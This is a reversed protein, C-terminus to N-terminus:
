FFLPFVFCFFLLLGGACSLRPKTRIILNLFQPCFQSCLRYDDYVSGRLTVLGTKRFRTGKNYLSYRCAFFVVQSTFPTFHPIFYSLHCSRSFSLRPSIPFHMSSACLRLFVNFLDDDCHSVLESSIILVLTFPPEASKAGQRREGDEGEVRSELYRNLEADKRVAEESVKPANPLCVLVVSM